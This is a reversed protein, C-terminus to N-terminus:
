FLHMLILCAVYLKKQDPSFAIGNPRTMTKCLLDVEGNPHVRFVGCFDIEANMMLGTPFATHLIPSIFQELIM